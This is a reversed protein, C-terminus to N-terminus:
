VNALNKKRFKSRRVPQPQVRNQSISLFHCGVSQKRKRAAKVILLAVQTLNQLEYFERSPAANKSLLNLEKQLKKLQKRAFELGDLTRIIGTNQWMLEQLAKKKAEIFKFAVIEKKTIAPFDVQAANSTFEVNKVADAAARGGFIWGEPLSNSALRNAGHIGTCAVEGCAYLHKISTRGFSDTVVGGCMFHAAPVVPILESRLDLNSELCRAFIKPFRLPIETQPLHRLDLYVCTSNAKQMEHQIARSVLDRPALSGSSHHKKMFPFGDANVLEAGFGRVAESILFTPKGPDYLATPHFQVFELNKMDAGARSAMALGDGTAVEPNTTHQYVQGAGGTALMIRKAYIPFVTDKQRSFTLVGTCTKKGGDSEAVLLDVAFYDELLTINPQNQVANLLAQQVSFGTYDHTHVIRNHSHGGERGLDLNGKQNKTFNVGLEQLDWICQPAKEALLSVMKEDCLGAGATLTDQIHIEFGDKPDIVASLGGQAFSTNTEAAKGKCIVGVTGHKAVKLAFGLGGIGSGIVLFDFSLM